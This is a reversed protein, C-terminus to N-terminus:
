LSKHLYHVKAQQPIPCVKFKCKNRKRRAYTTQRQGKASTQAKQTGSQHTQKNTQKVTQNLSPAHALCSAMSNIPRIWSM